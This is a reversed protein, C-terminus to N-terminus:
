RKARGLAVKVHVTAPDATCWDPLAPVPAAVRVTDRRGDIRIPALRLTDLTRVAHRPGTVRVVAPQAVTVGSWAYGPAPVGEVRVAVPLDRIERRDVDVEVVRPGVLNEVSVASGAPLPLDSPVLARAFHGSSAGGMPIRLRPEKVRLAILQKVTGRIEALVVAPAPGSLSLSDPLDAFDVPFSVLMTGARDTYVNLYVLVSLVLATLKLGLNDLLWGRLVNM